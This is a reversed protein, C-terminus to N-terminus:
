SAMIFTICNSLDTIPCALLFSSTM